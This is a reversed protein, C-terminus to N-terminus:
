DANRIIEQLTLVVMRSGENAHTMFPDGPVITSGQCFLEELLAMAQKGDATLFMRRMADSQATFEKMIDEATKLPM